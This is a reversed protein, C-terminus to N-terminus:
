LSIPRLEEVVTPNKKKPILVINTENLGQVMNGTLFFQRVLEVVDMGVIKWHKQFFAPTMGDPGTSIDLHMQFLVEKVEETMIPKMLEANQAHTIKTESCDVVETWSSQSKIFLETFQTTLM